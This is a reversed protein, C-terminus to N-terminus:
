VTRRCLISHFTSRVQQKLIHQTLLSGGTAGVRGGVGLQGPRSAGADPRKTKAAKLRDLELQLTHKADYSKPNVTYFKHAHVLSAESWRPHHVESGQCRQAQQPPREKERSAHGPPIKACYV